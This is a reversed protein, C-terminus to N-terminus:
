SPSIVVTVAQPYVEGEQTLGLGPAVVITPSLLYTGPGYGTLDVIAQTNRAATGLASSPGVLTVLVKAPHTHVVLGPTLNRPSVGIEISSSASVPSLQVSVRVSRTHSSVGHPLKFGVSTVVTGAGRNTMSVPYTAVHTLKKLADPSGTATIESPSVTIGTVGVGPQPQGKITVLIPLTKFTSLPTIPINVRVEQPDLTLKGSVTRGQSSEPSVKYTGTTSSHEQSLDIYVSAQSVQAVSSQAGSVTVTSPQVHIYPAYYGYPPPKLVHYQVPVHKQSFPELIVPIRSPSVQLVTVGADAVVQVPVNSRGPKSGTLDVFAHFSAPTVPVNASDLRYRVHVSRLSNTVTLQNPVNATSVGIPPGYDQAITPDSKSTIYLWLALALVVSLALRLLSERSWIWSFQHRASVAATGFSRPRAVPEEFPERKVPQAM